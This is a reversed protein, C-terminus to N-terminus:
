EFASYSARLRLALSLRASLNFVALNFPNLYRGHICVHRNHEAFAQLIQRQPRVANEQIRRRSQASMRSRDRLPQRAPKHNRVIAIGFRQLQRFQVSRLPRISDAKVM